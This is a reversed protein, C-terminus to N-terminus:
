VTQLQTPLLLVKSSAKSESSNLVCFLGIGLCQGLVGRSEGEVVVACGPDYKDTPSRFTRAQDNWTWNEEKPENHRLLVGPNSNSVMILSLVLFFNCIWWVIQIWTKYGGLYQFYVMMSVGFILPMTIFVVVFWFPGAVWILRQSFRWLVAMNGVREARLLYGCVLATCILHIRVGGEASEEEEESSNTKSRRWNQLEDMWTVRVRGVAFPHKKWHITIEDDAEQNSEFSPEDGVLLGESAGNDGSQVDNIPAAIQSLNERGEPCEGNEAGQGGDPM